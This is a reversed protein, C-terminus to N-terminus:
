RQTLSDRKAAAQKGRWGPPRAQEPIDVRNMNEDLHQRGIPTIVYKKLGPEHSTGTEQILAAEQMAPLIKDLSRHLNIWFGSVFKNTGASAIERATCGCEANLPDSLVQLVILTSQETKWQKIPQRPV